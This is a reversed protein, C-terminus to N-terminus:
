SERRLDLGNLLRYIVAWHLLTKVKVIIKKSLSRTWLIKLSKSSEFFGLAKLKKRLIKVM